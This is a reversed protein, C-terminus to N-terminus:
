KLSTAGQTRDKITEIEMRLETRRIVRVVYEDEPRDYLLVKVQGHMELWVIMCLAGILNAGSLLLYDEATSQALGEIIEETLRATKFIPYNGNTVFTLAGYKAASTYDHTQSKNTVYVTQSM